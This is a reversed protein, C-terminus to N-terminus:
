EWTFNTFIWDFLLETEGFRDDSGLVVTLIKRNKKEILAVLNEKAQLTYGTKFGIVGDIDLLRNLNVLNHVIQKNVSAVTTYKTAVIRALVPNQHAILAMKSLDAASSYHNSSDFGAPNDFHTNELGLEAAKKNMERVFGVTGGPHNQAITFAADNGSNLMMGYLLSRFTIREGPKLGMSAGGAMSIDYVTLEQNQEYISLATLATMIKTTSAIPVSKNPDKAFLVMNSESDIAIASTATLNPVPIGNSKPLLVQHEAGAVNELTESNLNTALVKSQVIELSNTLGLLVNVALLIIALCYLYRYM